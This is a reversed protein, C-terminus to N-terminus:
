RPAAASNLYGALADRARRVVSEWDGPAPQRVLRATPYWPSDDRELMWRWDHPNYPLLIWAAKGMAGALNAVSTDVTVVVDCLEVLAATDAFDELEAGISRVDGRSVLLAADREPVEKQLSVWDCGLELLPLMEALTMSRTDNRLAASGSWVIAVRAKTSEGLRARWAAIREADARVYPVRAPISGLDTRFALPLSMLPCHFDFGPLLEGRAVVQAVGDLGALLGRLPPQVELVVRAGRDAVDRAYRCFLLTDGLGMEAYLLVTRNRLSEKGLWLPQLFDRRAHERQPLKWRWEYEQWGRAFEGLMLCCDALNWHASAYDPRIELAREFSAIADRHRHLERLANGRNYWAEAYDPRLEVARELAAFAEAPRGLDLLATGLNNGAEPHRPDLALAREFCSLAEERRDLTGLAVGRGNHASAYGPKLALAQEHSALAEAHRGLAHLTVGRNYHAEPSSPRLRLMREYSALADDLRGLQALVVGRNYHADAFDPKLALARDYSDLAEPWRGLEGLAVGRNFHADANRPNRAIARTLLEVAEQPRRAQGAIIALLFLADFTEGNAALLARAIREAEAFAGRQFAAFAHQITPTAGQGM